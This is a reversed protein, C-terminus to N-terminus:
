AQEAHCLVYFGVDISGAEFGGECYALYYRWLRYFDDDFGQTTLNGWTDEFRSTWERLTQAYDLGFLQQKKLKFGHQHIKSKLIEISPLMGGPFVYRQIFDAQKRYSEFRQDEITIIQLVANGQPKLIRKLTKFYTDWHAEGVAEFMEISVVGDYQQDLDRYDKLNLAIHQDLGEKTVTQKAWKLQEESLTIGQVNLNNDKFAKLAFGGWGCGIEAISQGKKANLLELIRAYKNQQAQALSEQPHHYLASSYTMSEDLWHRYFENGLDYHAAINKRSGRRSNDKQWHYINHMIQTVFSAKSMKTLAQEYILAWKVLSAINTSDWEGALYSESFGNTGGFYLRIIPRLSHLQINAKPHNTGFSCVFGSPFTISLTGCNNNITSSLKKILLNELWNPTYSKKFTPSTEYNRMILYEM